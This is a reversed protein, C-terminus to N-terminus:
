PHDGPLSHPLGRVSRVSSRALGSAGYKSANQRDKEARRRTNELEAMSRMLRDKLEAVEGELAANRQDPTEEGAPPEATEAAVPAGGEDAAAEAPASESEPTKTEAADDQPAEAGAATKKEENM